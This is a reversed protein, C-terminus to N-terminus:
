NVVMIKTVCAESNGTANQSAFVYYVGTKVREGNGNCGDWVYMGGNSRGQHLVNGAADAIKVLSDDMLGKITIWGYYDPRVPNPYAIVNDYNDVGPSSTSNYEVVGLDTGFFVSSSNIDCAVSYVTNSPLISNDTTYHELIEDGNESVFYVGSMTAIWKRNQGDVAICNVMQGDLLSDALNTGDNRPVKIHNITVTSSNVKKLDAIEFVGSETGVWIRGRQDEVACIGHNFSLQKNDQDIYKNIVTIKDDKPSETGKNDVIIITHNWRGPLIVVHDSQKCAFGSMDRLPDEMNPVTLSTWDSIKVDKSLRKSAPLYHLRKESLTEPFQYLWLNGVRDVIPLGVPYAWGKAFDVLPTNDTFYKHTQKGDKIRYCGEFMTGIYYAGPDTPDECLRFGYAVHHPATPTYSNSSSNDTEVDMATVDEINGRSIINVFTQTREGEPIKWLGHEGLNYVYINGSNGTHMGSAKGVTLKSPKSTDTIVHGSAVDVLHVGDADAKWARKADDFYTMKENGNRVIGNFYSEEGNHSISYAGKENCAYVGNRCVSLSNDFHSSNTNTGPVKLESLTFTNKEFDVVAKHLHYSGSYFNILYIWKSGVGKMNKWAYGGNDGDLSRMADVSTLNKDNKAFLLKEGMSLGLHEGVSVVHEVPSPTYITRHVENKKNDYIVMGFDTAILFLNDGFDVHNIKRSTTMVADKIDSINVVKGTDYIRDMNGSAYTVLMSEGNRDAYLGNVTGDNLITSINLSQVETTAKDIRFLAGQSMYYLYVRTEAMKDVNRYPTHITWSGVALQAHVAVPLLLLIFILSVIKKLM